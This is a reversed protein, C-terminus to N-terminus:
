PVSDKCLTWEDVVVQDVFDVLQVAFALLPHDTGPATAGGDDGLHDPVGDGDVVAALVDRDEDGLRHHPVLEAFEGGGPGEPTVAPLFSFATWFAIFTVTLGSGFVDAVRGGLHPPHEVEDPTQGNYLSPRNQREGRPAGGITTRLTSSEAM